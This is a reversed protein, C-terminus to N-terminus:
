DLIWDGDFLCAWGTEAVAEAGLSLAAQQQQGALGEADQHGVPFSALRLPHPGLMDLLDCPRNILGIPRPGHAM